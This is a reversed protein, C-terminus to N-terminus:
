KIKAICSFVDKEFRITTLVVSVVDGKRIIRGSELHYLFTGSFDQRLEWGNWSVAPILCQIKHFRGFVGNKFIFEVHLDVTDALRPFYAMVRASVLLFVNPLMRMVEEHHIQELSLVRSIYGIDVM